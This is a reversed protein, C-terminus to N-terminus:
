LLAGNVNWVKLPSQMMFATVEHIPRAVSSLMLQIFVIPPVAPFAGVERDKIASEPFPAAEEAVHKLWWSMSGTEPGSFSPVLIM